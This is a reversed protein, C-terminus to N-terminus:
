SVLGVTDASSLMAGTACMATMVFKGYSHQDKINSKDRTPPYPKSLVWSDDSPLLEQYVQFKEAQLRSIDSERQM